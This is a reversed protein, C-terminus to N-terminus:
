PQRRLSQEKQEVRHSPHRARCPQHRARHPRRRPNIAFRDVTLGTWRSLTYRITGAIPSRGAVEQLRAELWLKLDEVLPRARQERAVRRTEADRGRIEAEIAYLGAIRRLVEAAIPASGAKALEFFRRRAHAWCHALRSLTGRSTPTSWRKTPATATPRCSARSTRSCPSPTSPAAAPPTPTSSRRRTAVAGAVTM